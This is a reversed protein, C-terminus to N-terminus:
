AAHKAWKCIQLLGVFSVDTVRTCGGIYTDTYLNFLMYANDKTGQVYNKYSDRPTRVIIGAEIMQKILPMFKKYYSEKYGMKAVEIHLDQFFFEKMEFAKDIIAKKYVDITSLSIDVHSRMIENLSGNMYIEIGGGNQVVIKEVLLKLQKVTLTDSAIIDDFIRLAKSLGEKAEKSSMTAFEQEDIQSKITQLYTSKDNIAKQYTSEIIDKMAPNGIIDKVKQEMLGMLEQTAKDYEKKLAALTKVSSASYVKKLEEEIIADLNDIASVLNQRCQRLYVKIFEILESEYVRNQSCYNSGLTNYTSCLYYRKDTVGSRATMLKGCQGCVIMGAFINNYKRIGKHQHKEAREARMKQALTFTEIDILPEHNNEFKIHEDEDRLVSRGNIGVTKCKRQVLTGIYFENEILRGVATASWLKAVSKKAPEFGAEERIREHEQSPTPVKMDNFMRAIAQDGHGNVYLEFAMKVYGCTREDIDFANRKSYNRKYGYPVNVIWKGEKQKSHIVSKIKKSIDKVYRENFWMTIGVMSDEDSLNSYNDNISIIEKGDKAFDELLIQTRPANRGFRSLDKVIIGDIIGDKLDDKMRDFDPRSMKYGKFGDDIYFGVLDLDNEEAFQSIIKRQNGVSVSENNGDEESLRIYGGYKKPKYKNELKKKAM